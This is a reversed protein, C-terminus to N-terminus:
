MSMCIELKCVKNSTTLDFENASALAAARAKNIADLQASTLSPAPAEAKVVDDAAAEEEEEEDGENVKSDLDATHTLKRKTIKTQINM